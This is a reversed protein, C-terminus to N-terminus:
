EELPKFVQIDAESVCDHTARVSAEWVDVVRPFDEPSVFSVVAQSPM